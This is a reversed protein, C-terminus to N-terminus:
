RFELNFAQLLNPHIQTHVIMMVEMPLVKNKIAQNLQTLSDELQGTHETATGPAFAKLENEFIELARIALAEASQYHAANVILYNRNIKPSEAPSPTMNMSDNQMTNMSATDMTMNSETMGMMGAFVASSIIFCVIKDGEIAIFFPESSSNTIL